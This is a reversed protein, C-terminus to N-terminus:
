KLVIMKMVSIFDNAKLQYYYIGSPLSSNITFLSSHFGASQFENVLTKVEQGLSNFIKLTVNSSVPLQYSITTTPNFPNPYNQELVFDVPLANQKEVDTSRSITFKRIESWDSYGALNSSSIKWYYVSNKDSTFVFGTDTLDTTDIVLNLFNSDTSVKLWYLESRESSRWILKITKGTDSYGSVPFVLETKEPKLIFGTPDINLQPNGGKNFIDFRLIEELTEHDWANNQIYLTAPALPNYEVVLDYYGNNQIVNQGDCTDNGGGMDVPYIIRVGASDNNKIINGSIPGRLGALIMGDGSCNSITNNSVEEAGKSYFGHHAKTIVNEAFKTVGSYSYYGLYGGEIYNNTVVGRGSKTLIGATFSENELSHYNNDSDLKITNGIINTPAGSMAIIGSVKGKGTIRNNKLTASQSKLLIVANVEDDDKHIMNGNIEYNVTNDEIIENEVENSTGGSKDIIRGNIIENHAITTWCAGSLDEIGNQIENDTILYTHGSGSSIRVSGIKNNYIKFKTNLNPSAACSFNIGNNIENNEIKHSYEPQPQNQTLDIQGNTFNINDVANNTIINEGVIVGAGHGYTISEEIINADIIFYPIPGSTIDDIMGAGHWILINKCMCDQIINPTIFNGNFITKRIYIFADFSIDYIQISKDSHEKFKINGKIITNEASEGKLIVGPKIFLTDNVPSYLGNFVFVTDESFANNMAEDITKFPHEFTGEEIGNTNSDDVYITSPNNNWNLINAWITFLSGNIHNSQWTNFIKNNMLKIDPSIQSNSNISPILFNNNIKDGEKNFKQAYINADGTRSDIWSIIFNGQEDASVASASQGVTLTDDKIKFNIGLAIGQNNYRQASIEETGNRKATWSIILNGYGEASLAISSRGTANDVNNVKFNAGEMLGNNGIRQCYIEAVSGNRFDEWAIYYNGNGGSAVVPFHQAASINDDNIRFNVGQKQGTANFRQGYIDPNGAGNRYDMWVVMFNGTEDSAVSPFRECGLNENVMFNNGQPEGKNNYVQAYIDPVSSNRCDEWVIIFSGSGNTTIAPYNQNVPVADDNVKFNSGLTNGDNDFLHAYIDDGSAGDYTWAIMFKGASNVTMVPSFQHCNFDPASVQFDNVISIKDYLGSNQAFYITNVFLHLIFITILKQM